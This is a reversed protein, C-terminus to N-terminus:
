CVFVPPFVFLFSLFVGRSSCLEGSVIAGCYWGTHTPAQVQQTFASFNHLATDQVRRRVAEARGGKGEPMHMLAKKKGSCAHRRNTWFDFVYVGMLHMLQM